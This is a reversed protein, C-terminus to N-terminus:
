KYDVEGDGNLDLTKVLEFLEDLRLPVGSQQLGDVFESISISMSKDKDLNNFVDFIRMQNKKVHDRLIKMPKPREAPQLACGSFGGHYVKILPNSKQIFNLHNVFASNM